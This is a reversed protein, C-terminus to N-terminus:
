IKNIPRFNVAAQFHSWLKFLNHSTFIEKYGDPSLSLGNPFCTKTDENSWVNL